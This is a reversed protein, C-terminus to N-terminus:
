RRGAKSLKKAAAAKKELDPDPPTIDVQRSCSGTCKMIIKLRGTTSSPHSLKQMPRGCCQTPIRAPERLPKVAQMVDGKKTTM